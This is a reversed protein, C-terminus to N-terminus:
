QAGPAARPATSEPWAPAVPARLGRSRSRAAARADGIARVGRACKATSFVPAGGSVASVPRCNVATRRRPLCRSNSAPSRSAPRAGSSSPVCRSSRAPRHWAGSPAPARPANRPRRRAARWRPRSACSCARRGRRRPRARPAARAGRGPAARRRTRGRPAPPPARGRAAGASRAAARRARSRRCRGPTRRRSGARRWATATRSRSAAEVGVAARPEVRRDALHQLAAHGLADLALPQHQRHLFSPRSSRMWSCSPSGHGRQESVSRNM